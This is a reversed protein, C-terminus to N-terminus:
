RAEEKEVSDKLEDIHPVIPKRQSKAYFIGLIQITIIPTMAIMAIVGFADSAPNGGAAQSAGLTFALIFTSALPGSVVGGSDFAIATFLKPCFFTLGLSLGYGPLLFWWISAGTVVRLMAIGIALAVGISLSIIMLNRRIAGGSLAEVQDTLVWITPEAFVVLAGLVLGIPILIWNYPLAGLSAGIAAGAPLFGGNAGLLFLVLGLYTYIFGKYIKALQHIPLHLITFQFILSLLALPGLAYLVELLIGPVLSFFQRSLSGSFIPMAYETIASGGVRPFLGIALVALIPGISAMGVLGFSDDNSASRKRVTAVGAGLAMIFPVTMPGTTAGGADFAVSLITSDAFAAIAFLFGYFGILAWRLPVRLIIRALGISVFLGVGLAIMVLLLQKPISPDVIGVQDALVRVAPEAITIIFGIIFGATLILKLNKRRVLASGVREGLPVPGIETGLLFLGLGVIVLAGSILFALTTQKEMPALTFALILVMALIPIVSVGTERIKKILNM